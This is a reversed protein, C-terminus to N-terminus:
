NIILGAHPDFILLKYYAVPDIKSYNFKINEAWVACGSGYALTKKRSFQLVNGYHIKIIVTMSITVLTLFNAKFARAQICSSLVSM